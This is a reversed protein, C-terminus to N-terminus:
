SFKNHSKEVKNSQEFFLESFEAGYVESNSRKIKQEIYLFSSYNWELMEVYNSKNAERLESHFTGFNYVYKVYM